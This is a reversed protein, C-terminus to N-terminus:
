EEEMEGLTIGAIQYVPPPLRPYTPVASTVLLPPTLSLEILRLQNYGDEFVSYLCRHGQTSLRYRHAKPVFNRWEFYKDLLLLKAKHVAVLGEYNPKDKDQAVTVLLREIWANFQEAYACFPPLQAPTDGWLEQMQADIDM